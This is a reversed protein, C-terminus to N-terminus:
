NKKFSDSTEFGVSFPFMQFFAEWVSLLVEGWVGLQGHISLSGSFCSRALFGILNYVDCSKLFELFHPKGISVTARLKRQFIGLLDFGYSANLPYSEIIRFIAWSRNGSNQLATTNLNWTRGSFYILFFRNKM